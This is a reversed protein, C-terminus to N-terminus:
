TVITDSLARLMTVMQKQRTFRSGSDSLVPSSRALRSMEHHRGLLHGCFNQGTNRWQTPEDGGCSSCRAFLDLTSKVTAAGSSSPWRLLGPFGDARFTARAWRSSWAAALAVSSAMAAGTRTPSEGTWRVRGRNPASPRACARVARRRGPVGWWHAPWGAAQPPASAHRVGGLPRVRPGSGPRASRRTARGRPSATESAGTRRTRLFGRALRPWAWGPAQGADTRVHDPGQRLPQSHLGLRRSPPTRVATTIGPGHWPAPLRPVGPRHPRSRGRPVILRLAAGARGLEAAHHRRPPTPPVAVARGVAGLLVAGPRHGRPDVPMNRLCVPPAPAHIV